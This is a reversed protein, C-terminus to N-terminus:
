PFGRQCLCVAVTIVKGCTFATQFEPMHSSGFPISPKETQLYDLLSNSRADHAGYTIKGNHGLGDDYYSSRDGSEDKRYSNSFGSATHGKNRGGLNRYGGGVISGRGYDLGDAVIKFVLTRIYYIRIIQHFLFKSSELRLNAPPQDKSGYGKGVHFANRHSFLDDYYATNDRFGTRGGGQFFGQQAGATALRTLFEPWLGPPIVIPPLYGNEGGGQMEGYGHEHHDSAKAQLM